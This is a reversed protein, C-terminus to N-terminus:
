GTGNENGASLEGYIRDLKEDIDGLAGAIYTLAATQIDENSAGANRLKQNGELHQKLETHIGPSM